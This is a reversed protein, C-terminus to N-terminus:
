KAYPILLAPTAPIVRGIYLSKDRNLILTIHIAGPTKSVGIDLM